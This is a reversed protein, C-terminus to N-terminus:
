RQSPMLDYPARWGPLAAIRDAWAAINPFEARLDFGTESQPYFVYGAMSLDAITPREGVTWTRTALHQDFVKFAATTRARLFAIVDPNGRPEVLANLFRHTAFYSTFKHNDFLIWRWIERKEDPDRGGFKGLVEALYDLIVGSQTLTRGEHELVPCEGMENLGERWGAQRTEGGFFDVLVPEWDAGCLALMLAPKYSNGSQGFCHLRFAAM